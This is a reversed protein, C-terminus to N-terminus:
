GLETRDMSVVSLPHLDRSGEGGDGGGSGNNTGNNDRREGEDVAPIGDATDRPAINPFLAQAAHVDVELTGGSFRVCQTLLATNDSDSLAYMKLWMLYRRPGTAPIDITPDVALLLEVWEDSQVPTLDTPLPEIITTGLVFYTAMGLMGTDISYNRLARIYEPDNPNEEDRGKEELFVKPPRPPTLRRASDLMVMQSVRRLKLRLGNSAVFISPDSPLAQLSDVAQKMEDQM